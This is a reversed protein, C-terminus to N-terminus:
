WNGKTDSMSSSTSFQVRFDNVTMLAFRSSWGQGNTLTVSESTSPLDKLNPQFSKGILLWGGDSVTM